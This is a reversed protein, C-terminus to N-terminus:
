VEVQKVVDSSNIEILSTHACTNNAGNLTRPAHDIARTSHSGNLYCEDIEKEILSM